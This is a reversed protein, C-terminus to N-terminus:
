TQVTSKWNHNDLTYKYLTLANAAYQPNSEWTHLTNLCTCRCKFVAVELIFPSEDYFNSLVVLM